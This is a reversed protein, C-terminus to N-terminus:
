LKTVRKPSSTEFIYFMIQGTSHQFSYNWMQFVCGLSNIVLKLGYWKRVKSSVQTQFVNVSCLGFSNFNWNWDIMAHLLSIFEQLLIDTGSCYLESHYLREVNFQGSGVISHRHFSTHVCKCNPERCHKINWLLDYLDNQGHEPNTHGNNQVLLRTWKAM